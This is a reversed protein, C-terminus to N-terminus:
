LYDVACVGTCVSRQGVCRGRMGKSDQCAVGRCPGHLDMVGARKPLFCEVLALVMHETSWAPHGQHEWVDARPGDPFCYSEESVVWRDHLGAKGSVCGSSDEQAPLVFLFRHASLLRIAFFFFFGSRPFLLWFNAKVNQTWSLPKGFFSSHGSFLKM